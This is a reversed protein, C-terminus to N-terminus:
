THVHMHIQVREERREVESARERERERERERKREREGKKREKRVGAETLQSVFIEQDDRDAVPQEAGEREDGEEKEGGGGTREGPEPTTAKQDKMGEESVAQNESNPPWKINIKPESPTDKNSDRSTNTPSYFKIKRGQSPPQFSGPFEHVGVHVYTNSNSWSKAAFTCIEFLYPVEKRLIKYDGRAREKEGM